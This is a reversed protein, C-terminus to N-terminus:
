KGTFPQKCYASIHEYKNEYKQDKRGTTQSMHLDMQERTLRRVSQRTKLLWIPM